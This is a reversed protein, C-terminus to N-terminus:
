VALELVLEVLASSFCRSPLSYVSRVRARSLCVPLSFSLSLPSLSSLSSLSLSCSLSLSLSLAGARRSMRARARKRQTRTWACWGGCARPAAAAADSRVGSAGVPQQAGLRFYFFIFLLLFLFLFFFFVRAALDRSALARLLFSEFSFRLPVAILADPRAKYASKVVKSSGVVSKVVATSVKCTQHLMIEHIHLLTNVDTYTLV